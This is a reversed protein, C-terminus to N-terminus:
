LGVVSFVFKLIAYAAFIILIGLSAWVLTLQGKKVREPNGASTLMFIGGYIFMILSITGIIGLFAKIIDGIIVPASTTGLPNDLENDATSPKDGGGLDQGDSGGLDQALVFGATGFFLFMILLILILTKM